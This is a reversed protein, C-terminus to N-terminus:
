QAAKFLHTKNEGCRRWPDEEPLHPYILFGAQVAIILLLTLTLQSPKKISM